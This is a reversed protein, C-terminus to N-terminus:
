AAELGPIPQRIGGRRGFARKQAEFRGDSDAPTLDSAELVM